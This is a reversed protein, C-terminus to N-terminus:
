VGERGAIQRVRDLTIVEGRSPLVPVGDRVGTITSSAALAKRALASLVQGVNRNETRALDKVATLVDEDIDLTARM